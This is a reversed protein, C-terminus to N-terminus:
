IHCHNFVSYSYIGNSMQDVFPASCRLSWEFRSMAGLLVFRFSKLIAM